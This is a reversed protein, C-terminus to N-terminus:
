FVRGGKRLSTCVTLSKVVHKVAIRQVGCALFCHNCMRSATQQWPSGCPRVPARAASRTKACVSLTSIMSPPLHLAAACAFGHRSVPVSTNGNGPGLPSHTIPAPLSQPRPCLKCRERLRTGGGFSRGPTSRRVLQGQPVRWFNVCSSREFPTVTWSGHEAYPLFLVFSLSRFSMARLYRKRERYEKTM